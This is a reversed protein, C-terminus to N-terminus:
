VNERGMEEDKVPATETDKSAEDSPECTLGTPREGAVVPSPEAPDRGPPRTPARNAGGDRAKDDSTGRELEAVKRHSM